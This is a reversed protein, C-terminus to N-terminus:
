KVYGSFDSARALSVAFGHYYTIFADLNIKFLELHLSLLKPGSIM